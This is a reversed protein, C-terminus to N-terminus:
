DETVIKLRCFLAIHNSIRELIEALFIEYLIVIRELSEIEHLIHQDIIGAQPLTSLKENNLTWKM